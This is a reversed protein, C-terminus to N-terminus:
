CIGGSNLPGVSVGSVWTRFKLKKPHSATSSLFECFFCDFQYIYIHNIYAVKVLLQLNEVGWITQKGENVNGKVMLGGKDENSWADETGLFEWVFKGQLFMWCGPEGPNTPIDHHWSLPNMGIPPCNIVLTKPYMGLSQDGSKNWLLTLMLNIFGRYISNRLGWNPNIVGWHIFNRLAKNWFKLGLSCFTNTFLVGGKGKGREFFDKIRGHNWNKELREFSFINM